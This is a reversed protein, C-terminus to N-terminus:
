LPHSWAWKTLRVVGWWAYFALIVAILAGGALSVVSNLQDSVGNIEAAERLTKIFLGGM